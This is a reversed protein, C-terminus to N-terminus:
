TMFCMAYNIDMSSFVTASLERERELCVCLEPLPQKYISTATPCGHVTKDCECSRRMM